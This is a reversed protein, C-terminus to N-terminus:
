TLPEWTSCVPGSVASEPYKRHDQTLVRGGPFKESKKRHNGALEQWFVAEM